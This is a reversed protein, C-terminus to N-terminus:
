VAKVMLAQKRYSFFLVWFSFFVIGQQLELMSEFLFNMSMGAAFVMFTLDYSLWARVMLYGMLFILTLMGIWGWEAGIQLYENHAPLKQELAELENKAQYETVLHNTVNGTGVGMSHEELVHWAASWTVFRMATSAKETSNPTGALQTKTDSLARSVRGNIAPVSLYFILFTGLVVGAHTLVRTWNGKMRIAYVLMIAVAMFLTLFGSKSSLFAVYMALLASVTLLVNRRMRSTADYVWMFHYHALVMVVYMALYSPHFIWSLKQYFFDGLSATHHYSDFAHLWSATAFLSVGLAFACAARFRFRQEVTPLYWFLIPMFVLSLKTEINPWFEPHVRLAFSSFGLLVAFVGMLYFPMKVRSTTTPKVWGNVRQVAIVVLLIGLALNLLRLNIPMIFAVFLLAPEHLRDKSFMSIYWPKDVM